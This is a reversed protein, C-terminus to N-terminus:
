LVRGNYLQQFFNNSRLLYTSYREWDLEDYFM